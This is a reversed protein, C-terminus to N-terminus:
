EYEGVSPPSVIEIPDSDHVISLTMYSGSFITSCSFVTVIRALAPYRPAQDSISTSASAASGVAARLGGAGFTDTIEQCSIQRNNM